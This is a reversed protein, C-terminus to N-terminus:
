ETIEFILSSKSWPLLELSVILNSTQCVIKFGSINRDKNKTKKRRTEQYTVDYPQDWICAETPETEKSQNHLHPNHRSQYTCTHMHTHIYSHIVVHTHIYLTSVIVNLDHSLKPLCHGHEVVYLPNFAFAPSKVGFSATTRSDWDSEPTLASAASSMCM